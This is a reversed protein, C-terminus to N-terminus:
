DDMTLFGAFDDAPDFILVILCTYKRTNLWRSAGEVVYSFNGIECPGDLYNRGAQQADDLRFFAKAESRDLTM